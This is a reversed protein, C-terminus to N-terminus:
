HFYKDLTSQRSKKVAQMEVFDSCATLATIPSGENSEQMFYIRLEDIYKKAERNTVHRIEPMDDEDEATHMTNQREEAIQELIDDECHDNENYCSVTDDISDFQEYNEVCQVESVGQDENDHADLELKPQEFGCHRFSNQITKPSM